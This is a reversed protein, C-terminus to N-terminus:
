IFPFLFFVSVPPPLVPPLFSFFILPSMLISSLVSAKLRGKRLLQKKRDGTERRRDGTRGEKGTERGNDKGTEPRRTEPRWYDYGESDCLSVAVRRYLSYEDRM